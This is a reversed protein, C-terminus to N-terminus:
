AAVAARVPLGLTFRSGRGLESRVVIEGGLARALDRSIALGLGTGERLPGGPRRVQVFPDFIEALATEPIGTGTDEVAIEVRDATTRLSVTVSGADTFKVANSLLNGVVQDVRKADSHIWTAGDPVQLELRVGKRAAEAGFSALKRDVLDRLDVPAYELGVQGAEISSIDLVDEVLARLHTSADRVIRLQRAQDETLPGSLGQLIVDTFGVIANLPTRLEHSMTSLFTTKVRDSREAADKAAELEQTRERVRQELRRHVLQLELQAHKIATVDTITGIHGVVRGDGDQEPTLQALVWVTRGDPRVVRFEASGADDGASTQYRAWASALGPKDDPHLAREWGRATPEFGTIERARRNVFTVEGDLNARFIGVPSVETLARYREEISRLARETRVLDTIDDAMVIFGQVSGDAAQLATATWRCVIARGQATMNEHVGGCSADPNTSLDALWGLAEDRFGPIPLLSNVFTGTVDESDYGFTREFAPNVQLLRGDPSIVMCASAMREFQLQMRGLLRDREAAVTALRREHELRESVDRGIALVYTHGAATLTRASFELPLLTGDKRNHHVTFAGHGTRVVDALWELMSAGDASVAARLERVTMRLLEERAYGYAAAARDNAEVIREDAADVLLVIDHVLRGAVVFQQQLRSARREAAHLRSTLATSESRWWLVVLLAAVCLGAMGLLLANRGLRQVPAYVQELPVTAVLFWPTDDVRRGSALVPAGRADLAEFAGVRGRVIQGAADLRDVEVFRLTADPRRNADGTGTLVTAGDPTRRALGFLPTAQGSRSPKLVPDLFQGPAARVLLVAAPLGAEASRLDVVMDLVPGADTAGHPVHLESMVIGGTLRARRVQRVLSESWPIAPGAAALPAAGLSAVEATEFGDSHRVFELAARLVDASNPEDALLDRVAHLLAPHSATNSHPAVNASGCNSRGRRSTPRTSSTPRPTSGRM